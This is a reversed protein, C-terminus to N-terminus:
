DLKTREFRLSAVGSHLCMGESIQSTSISGTSGTENSCSSTLSCTSGRRKTVISPTRLKPSAPSNETNVALYGCPLSQQAKRYEDMERRYRRSDRRAFVEFYSREQSTLSKWKQGVQRGLDAFGISGRTALLKVRWAKFFLNYASLPRKPARNIKEKHSTRQKDKRNEQPPIKKEVEVPHHPNEFGKSPDLDDDEEASNYAMIDEMTLDDLLSNTPDDLYAEEGFISIDATSDIRRFSEVCATSIDRPDEDPHGSSHAEMKIEEKGWNHQNSLNMLSDDPDIKSTALPVSM